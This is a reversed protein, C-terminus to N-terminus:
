RSGGPYRRILYHRRSLPAQAAAIAQQLTRKRRPPPDPHPPAICIFEVGAIETAAHCQGPRIRPDESRDVLRVIGTM